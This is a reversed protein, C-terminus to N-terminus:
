NNVSNGVKEFSQLVSAATRMAGLTVGATSQGPFVSDGVLWVGPYRTRPGRARFLSTQPYGGVYGHPRQTYFEFTVPTGPLCLDVARGIGPLAIEAASLLRATYEAKKAQYADYDNQKLQWWSDVRTHSSLTAARMGQPARTLDEQPSLSIFVSNGEGLALLPDVVVQHHDAPLDPLRNAHLGLYLTFAGWLDTAAPSTKNPSEPAFLKELGEPTSNVVIRSALFTQKRRTHVRWTGGTDAVIREVKQRYLVEGGNARIWAVLTEALAGIGGTVHNVGRRPLDLAASGYLASANGATTQASILLQADLFTKLRASTHRAGSLAAFRSFVYPLVALTKPRMAAAMQLVDRLSDPPYPFFRSTLDWSADALLEQKRWFPESGPFQQQREERWRQADRWQSIVTGDTHVQWAIDVPKVPWAIGLMEALRTHPGDPGFGGALTAGADFKYGQHFFTGASGGPYTQAELVTVPFGAKTLLAATTLGGIGAGIVVIQKGSTQMDGMKPVLIFVGSAPTCVIGPDGM